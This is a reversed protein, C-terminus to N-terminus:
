KSPLKIMEGLIHNYQSPTFSGLGSAPFFSIEGFLPRDKTDYLDIRSFILGVSLQRAIEKMKTFHTPKVPEAEAPRAFPNLGYFVQHRWEMDFFDITEKSQRDKIVQCFTHVGNFCYFKYDTIDESRDSTNEIYKEAIIRRPVDRYPWERLYKYIDNNLATSLKRLIEERKMLAKEKCIIVGSGGGGHTTKLVFQRPLNDFDIDDPKDWVGYTPIIYEEGIISGVYYKVAYKDVMMSYEPRRDYLKLWQIKECFTKPKKLHLKEGVQLYYMMQLYWKDSIWFGYERLISSFFIRPHKAYVRLALM